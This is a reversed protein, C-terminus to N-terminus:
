ALPMKYGSRWYAQEYLSPDEGPKLGPPLADVFAGM